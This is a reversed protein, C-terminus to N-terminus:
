ETPPATIEVDAGYDSLDVVYTADDEATFFPGTLEARRLEAGEATIAFRAEVPRSPDQSTLLQEVVDGPITGRVERVV